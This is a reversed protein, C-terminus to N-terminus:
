ANLLKKYREVQKLFLEVAAKTDDAASHAKANKIGYKKTLVGLSYGEGKSGSCYDFMFEIQMTDLSYKSFPFTEGSNCRSWLLQMMNKDFSVNHGCLIRDSAPLMDENLWNEIEIIAKQPEIYNEKGYATKCLIDEKKHGNIRLAGDEVSSENLARILWTKQENNSLRYLSIEVIECENKLGTTETDCVIIEM